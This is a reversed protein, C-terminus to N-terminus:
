DISLCRPSRCTWDDFFDLNFSENNAIVKYCFFSSGTFYVEAKVAIHVIYESTIDHCTKYAIHINNIIVM